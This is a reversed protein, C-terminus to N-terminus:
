MAICMSFTDRHMHRCPRWLSSHFDFSNLDSAPEEYLESVRFEARDRVLILSLYVPPSIIYHVILLPPNLAM